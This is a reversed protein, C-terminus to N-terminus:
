NSENYSWTYGGFSNRNEKCCRVVRGTNKKKGTIFFEGAAASEFYLIEGTEINVAKVPRKHSGKKLSDNKIDIIESFEKNDVIKWTINKHKTNNRVAWSLSTSNEEGLFLSAEMLSYFYLSKGTEDTAKLIKDPHKKKFNTRARKIKSDISLNKRSEELIHKNKLYHMKFRERYEETRRIDDEKWPNHKNYVPNKEGKRSESRKKCSEESFKHFSQGGYSCNYGNEVSNYLDIYYKEKEDAAEFTDAEFLITLEFNNWGYKLIAPAFKSHIFNGNKNKELYRKGDNGSRKKVSYNTQGIYWKENLINRYGYITIFNNKKYM